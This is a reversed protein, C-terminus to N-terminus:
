VIQTLETVDRWELTGNHIYMLPFVLQVSRTYKLIMRSRTYKVIMRMWIGANNDDMKANANLLLQVVPSRLKLGSKVAIRLPTDGDQPFPGTSTSTSKSVMFHYDCDNITGIFINSSLIM